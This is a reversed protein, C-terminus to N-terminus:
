YNRWWTNVEQQHTTRLVPVLNDFANTGGYEHPIIHHIDYDAWGGAPTEFGEDYWQKIFAGRETKGWAVREAVPVKTLGPAPAPMPAGTRPDIVRPYCTGARNVVGAADDVLNTAVSRSNPTTSTGRADTSPSASGERVANFRAPGAGRTAIEHVEARVTSPVDYTFTEPGTATMSLAIVRGAGDAAMPFQGQAPPEGIDAVAASLALAGGESWTLVTAVVVVVLLALAEVCAAGHRAVPATKIV